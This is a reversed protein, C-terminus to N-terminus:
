SRVDRKDGSANGSPDIVEFDEIAPRTALGYGKWASRVSLLLRIADKPDSGQAMWPDPDGPDYKCAWWMSGRRELTFRYRPENDHEM